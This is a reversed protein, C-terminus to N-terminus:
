AYQLALNGRELALFEPAQWQKKKEALSYGAEELIEKLVGREQASELFGELAEQLNDRAESLTYGCSSVDFEPNYAVLMKGEKFIQTTFNLNLM